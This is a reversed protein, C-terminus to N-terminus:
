LPNGLLYFIRSESQMSLCWARDVPGLLAAVVSATPDTHVFVAAARVWLRLANIFNDKSLESSPCRWLCSPDTCPLSWVIRIRGDYSLHHHNIGGCAAWSNSHHMVLNFIGHVVYLEAACAVHHLLTMMVHLLLGWIESMMINVDCRPDALPHQIDLHRMLPQNYVKQQCHSADASSIECTAHLPNCAVIGM